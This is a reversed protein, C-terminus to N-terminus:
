LGAEMVAYTIWDARVSMVVGMVKPGGEGDRGEAEFLGAPVNPFGVVSRDFMRVSLRPSIVTTTRQQDPLGDVFYFRITPDGAGVQAVSVGDIALGDCGKVEVIVIGTDPSIGVAGSAAIGDRLEPTVLAPGEFETDEVFARNYFVLSPVFGPGELEFYGDFGHPVVFTAFGAADLTIGDVVPQSCTGDFRQCARGVVNEPITLVAYNFVTFAVTVSRTADPTEQPPAQCTLAPRAAGQPPAVPVVCLGQSCLSGAAIEVCDVDSTCQTISTDVLAQCGGLLSPALAALGWARWGWRHSRKVNQRLPWERVRGSRRGEPCM